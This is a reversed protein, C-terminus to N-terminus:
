RARGQSELGIFYMIANPIGAVRMRWRETLTERRELHWYFLMWENAKDM